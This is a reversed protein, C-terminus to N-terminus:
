VHYEQMSLNGQSNNLLDLNNITLSGLDPCQNVINSIKQLVLQAQESLNQNQVSKTFKEKGGETKYLNDILQSAQHKCQQVYASPAFIVAVLATVFIIPISLLIIIRLNKEM